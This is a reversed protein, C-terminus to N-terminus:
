LKAKGYMGESHWGNEQIVISGLSFAGQKTAISLKYTVRDLEHTVTIKLAGEPKSRGDFNYSLDVMMTNHGGAMKPTSVTDSVITGYLRSMVGERVDRTRSSYKKYLCAWQYLEGTSLRSSIDRMGGKMCQDLRPRGYATGVYYSNDKAVARLDEVLADIHKMTTRM